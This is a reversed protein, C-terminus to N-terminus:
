IVLWETHYRAGPLQASVLMVTMPGRPADDVEVRGSDDTALQKTERPTTISGNVRAPPEISLRVRCRDDLPIIELKVEIADDRFTLSRTRGYPDAATAALLSDATLALLESGDPRSRLARQAAELVDPPVSATRELVSRLDDLLRGNEDDPVNSGPGGTM